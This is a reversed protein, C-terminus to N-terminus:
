LLRVLEVRVAPSLNEDWRPALVAHPLRDALARRMGRKPVGGSALLDWRVGVCLEALRRDLYPHSAQVGVHAAARDYRELAAPIMPWELARVQDAAVSGVQQMDEVSPFHPRAREVFDIERALEPAISSSALYGRVLATRVQRDRAGLVSVPLRTRAARWAWPLLGSRVLM